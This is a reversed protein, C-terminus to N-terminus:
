WAKNKQKLKHNDWFQQVPESAMNIPEPTKKYPKREIIEYRLGETVCEPMSNVTFVKRLITYVTTVTHVSGGTCKAIQRPKLGEYYLQLVNRQAEHRSFYFQLKEKVDDM